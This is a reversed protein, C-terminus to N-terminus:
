IWHPSVGGNEYLKDYKKWIGLFQVFNLRKLKKQIETQNNRENIKM